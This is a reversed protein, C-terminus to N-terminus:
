EGDDDDLLKNLEIAQESSEVVISPKVALLDRSKKDIYNMGPLNYRADEANALLNSYLKDWALAIGKDVAGQLGQEDVYDYLEEISVGLDSATNQISGFKEVLLKATKDKDLVKMAM